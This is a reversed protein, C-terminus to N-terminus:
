AAKHLKEKEYTKIREEKEDLQKKFSSTLKNFTEVLDQFEDSRRVHFPEDSIGHDILDNMKRKLAFLPGAIRHTLIIGTVTLVGIIALFLSVLNQNLFNKEITLFEQTLASTVLGSELLATFNLHIYYKAAVIFVLTLLCAVGILFGVYRLQFDWNILYQRRRIFHRQLFPIM